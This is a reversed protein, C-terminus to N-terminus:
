DTMASLGAARGAASRLRMEAKGCLREPPLSLTVVTGKGEDSKMDFSGGHLEMFQKALPLGLGTGEHSRVYSGELQTFPQMVDDVRGAPIGIGTDA